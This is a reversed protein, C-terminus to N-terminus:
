STGEGLLTILSSELTFPQYLDVDFGDIFSDIILCYGVLLIRRYITFPFGTVTMLFELMAVTTYGPEPYQGSAHTRTRYPTTYGPHGPRTCGPYCPCTCWSWGPVGHGARYVM